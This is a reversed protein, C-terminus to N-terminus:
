SNRRSKGSRDGDDRRGSFELVEGCDLTAAGILVEVIDGIAGPLGGLEAPITVQVRIDARLATALSVCVSRLALIRVDGVISRKTKVEFGPGPLHSPTNRGADTNVITDADRGAETETSGVILANGVDVIREPDTLGHVEVVDDKLAVVLGVRPREHEGEVHGDVADCGAAGETVAKTEILSEVTAGLVVAARPSRLPPLVVGGEVRAGVARRERLGRAEVAVTDAAAAVVGDLVEGAGIANPGEVGEVLSLRHDDVAAGVGEVNLAEGVRIVDALLLVVEDRLLAALGEGLDVSVEDIGAGADRRAGGALVEGDGASRADAGARRVQGDARSGLGAVRGAAARAGRVRDVAVAASDDGRAVRASAVAGTYSASAAHLHRVGRVVAGADARGVDAVASGGVGVDGVARASARSARDGALDVVSAAVAGARSASSSSASLTAAVVVADVANAIASASAGVVGALDLAAAAAVDAAVGVSLINGAVGGRVEANGLAASVAHADVASDVAISLGGGEVGQIAGVSLAVRTAAQGAGTSTNLGEVIALGAREGEIAEAILLALLSLAAVDSADLGADSDGVVGLVANRAREGGVILAISGRAADATADVDRLHVLRAVVAVGAGEEVVKNVRDGALVRVAADHGVRVGVDSDALGVAGDAVVDANRAVVDGADGGGGTSEAEHSRELVATSAVVASLARHVVDALTLEASVGDSADDVPDVAADARAGRCLAGSLVRAENTAAKLTASAVVASIDTLVEDAAGRVVVAGDEAAVVASANLSLRDAGASARASAGDDTGGDSTHSGDSRSSGNSGVSAVADGVRLHKIGRGPVLELSASTSVARQVLGLGALLEVLEVM